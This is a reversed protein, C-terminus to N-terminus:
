AFREYLFEVSTLYVQELENAHILSCNCVRSVVMRTSEDQLSLVAMMPRVGITQLVAYEKIRDQVSMVTTTAVLSLVLGVCAYGLWHAFGIRDVLDSLLEM